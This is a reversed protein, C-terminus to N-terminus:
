LLSTQLLSLGLSLVAPSLSLAQACQSHTYPAPASGWSAWTQQFLQSRHGHSTGQAWHNQQSCVAGQASGQVRSVSFSSMKVGFESFRIVSETSHLSLFVCKELVEWGNPQEISLAIQQTTFPSSSTGMILYFFQELNGEVSYYLRFGSGELKNTEGAKM